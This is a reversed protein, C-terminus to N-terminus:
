IHRIVMLSGTSITNIEALDGDSLRLTPKKIRGSVRRKRLSGEEARQSGNAGRNRPMKVWWKLLLGVHGVLNQRRPRPVSGPTMRLIGGVAALLYLHVKHLDLRARTAAAALM